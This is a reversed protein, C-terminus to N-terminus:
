LPPAMCKPFSPLSYMATPSFALEALECDSEVLNPLISRIFESPVIGDSLGNKLVTPAFCSIHASPNLFGNVNANEGLGDLERIYMLSTPCSVQSSISEPM